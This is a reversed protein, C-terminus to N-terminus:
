DTEPVNAYNCDGAVDHRADDAPAGSWALSGAGLWLTANGSARGGAYMWERAVDTRPLALQLLAGTGGSELCRDYAQEFSQPAACFVYQWWDGFADRGPDAWVTGTCVQAFTGVANRDAPLNYAAVIRSCVFPREADCDDATDWEHPGPPVGGDVPTAADGDEGAGADETPVGGDVGGDVEDEDGPQHPEVTPIPDDGGGIGAYGFDMPGTDEVPALNGDGVVEEGRPVNTVGVPKGVASEEGVGEGRLVLYPESWRELSCGTLVLTAVLFHMRM